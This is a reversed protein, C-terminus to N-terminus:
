AKNREHQQQRKSAQNAAQEAVFISLQHKGCHVFIHAGIARTRAPVLSGVCATTNSGENSTM